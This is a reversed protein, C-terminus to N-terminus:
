SPSFTSMLPYSVIRLLFVNLFGWFIVKRETHPTHRITIQGWPNMRSETHPTHTTYSSRGWIPIASPTGQPPYPKRPAPRHIIKTGNGSLKRREILIAGSCMSQRLFWFLFFNRFPSFSKKNKIPSYAYNWTVRMYLHCHGIKM